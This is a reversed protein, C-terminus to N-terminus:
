SSYKLIAKIESHFVSDWATAYSPRYIITTSGARWQRRYISCVLFSLSGLKQINACNDVFYNM